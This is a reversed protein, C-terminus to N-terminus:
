QAKLGAGTISVNGSILLFDTNHPFITRVDGNEQVMKLTGNTGTLKGHDSIIYISSM